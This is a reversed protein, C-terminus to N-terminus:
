GILLRIDKPSLGMEKIILWWLPRPEEALVPIFDLARVRVGKADAQELKAELADARTRADRKATEDIRVHNLSDRYLEFRVECAPWFRGTTRWDFLHGKLRGWSAQWASSSVSIQEICAAAVGNIQPRNWRFASVMDDAGLPELELIARIKPANKRLEPQIASMTHRQLLEYALGVHAPWTEPRGARWGPAGIKKELRLSGFVARWLRLVAVPGGAAMQELLGDVFEPPSDKIRRNVYDGTAALLPWDAGEQDRLLARAALRAAGANDGAAMQKLADGASSLREKAIHQRLEEQGNADLARSLMADFGEFHFRYIQMPLLPRSLKGGADLFLTYALAALRPDREYLLGEAASRLAPRTRAHRGLRDLAGREAAPDFPIQTLQERLEDKKSM